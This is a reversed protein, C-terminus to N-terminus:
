RGRKSVNAFRASAADSAMAQLALDTQVKMVADKLQQVMSRLRQEYVGKLLSYKERYGEEDLVRGGAFSSDGPQHFAATAGLAGSGFLSRATGAM